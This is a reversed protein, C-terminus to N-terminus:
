RPILRRHRWRERLRLEREYEQRTLSWPSGNRIALGEQLLMVADAYRMGPQDVAHIRWCGHQWAPAESLVQRDVILELRRGRLCAEHFAALTQPMRSLESAQFSVDGFGQRVARAFGPDERSAASRQAPRPESNVQSPATGCGSLLASALALLLAFLSKM